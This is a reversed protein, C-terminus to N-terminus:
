KPIYYSAFLIFFLITMIEHCLIMILVYLYLYKGIIM